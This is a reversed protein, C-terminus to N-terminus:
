GDGDPKRGALQDQVLRWLRRKLREKFRPDVPVDLVDGQLFERLEEETLDAIAEEITLV